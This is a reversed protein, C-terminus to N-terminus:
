GAPQEKLLEDLAADVKNPRLGAARVIGERDVIVYFPWWQVGWSKASANSQDQATPYKMGHKTAAKRMAEGGRTNCVGFVVVGRDKFKAAIENTHPIAKICPGCWTAWFDILVIKGKLESMAPPAAGHWPGVTIAPAPKGIIRELAAHQSEGRAWTWERKFVAKPSAPPTSSEANALAFFTWSGCVLPVILATVIMSRYM